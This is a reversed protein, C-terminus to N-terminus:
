WQATPDSELAKYLAKWRQEFQRLEADSAIPEYGLGEILRPPIHHGLDQLCGLATRLNGEVLAATRRAMPLEDKLREIHEVLVAARLAPLAARREHIYAAIERLRAQVPEAAQEASHLRRRAAELKSWAATIAHEDTGDLAAYERELRQAEARAKELPALQTQTAAYESHLQDREAYASKLQESAPSHMENPAKRIPLLSM